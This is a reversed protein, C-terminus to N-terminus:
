LGVGKKPPACCFMGGPRQVHSALEGVVVDHSSGSQAVLYRTLDVDLDHLEKLYGLQRKLEADKIAGAANEREAQLKLEQALRAAELAHERELRATAATLAADAIQENVKAGSLEDARGRIKSLEASPTVELVGLAVLDCGARERLQTRLIDVVDPASVAAQVASRIPGTSDETFSLKSISNHATTRIVADCEAVPDPIALVEDIGAIRARLHVKATVTHGDAGRVQIDIEREVFFRLSLVLGDQLLAGAGKGTWNFSRVTDTAEPFFTTPGTIIVRPAAAPAVDKSSTQAVHRQIVLHQADDLLKVAKEVSVGLHYVPNEFLANPGRVHEITGDRYRIRLYEDLGAVHRDLFRITSWWLRVLKPGIIQTHQGYQDWVAVAEGDKVTRKGFKVRRVVGSGRFDIGM